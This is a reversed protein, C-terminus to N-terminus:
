RGTSSRSTSRAPPARAPTPSGAAAPRLRAPDSAPHGLLRGFDGGPQRHDHGRNRAARAALAASDPALYFFPDKVKALATGRRGVPDDRGAGHYNLLLRPCCSISGRCASRSAASIAWTLMSRKPGPSRSSSRAWAGRVRAHLRRHLFLGREAPQADRALVAPDNVIHMVGLVALTLFYFLMVPGFMLGVRATGRSQIAFLGVLIGIAIPIVFPQSGPM